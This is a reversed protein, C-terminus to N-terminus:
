RLSTSPELMSAPVMHPARACENLLLGFPTGLLPHEKETAPVSQPVQGAMEAPECRSPELLVGQLLRRM